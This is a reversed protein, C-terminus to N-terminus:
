AARTTIRACARAGSFFRRHLLLTGHWMTFEQLSCLEINNKFLPTGHAFGFLASLIGRGWYSATETRLQRYARRALRAQSAIRRKRLAGHDGQIARHAQGM